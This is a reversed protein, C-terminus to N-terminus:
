RLQPLSALTITTTTLRTGVSKASTITKRIGARLAVHTPRETKSENNPSDHCGMASVQTPITQFMVGALSIVIGCALLTQEVTNVDWYHSARLIRRQSRRIRKLTEKTILRADVLDDLDTRKHKRRLKRGFKDFGEQQIEHMTTANQIKTITDKFGRYPKHKVQMTYCAFLTALAVAMQFGPMKRFMLACFTIIAKRTLIPLVWFFKESRYYYYCTFFCKRFLYYRNAQMSIFQLSLSNHTM